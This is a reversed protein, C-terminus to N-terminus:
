GLPPACAVVTPTASAAGFGAAHLCVVAGPVPFTGAVVASFGHTRSPYSTLDPRLSRAMIPGSMQQPGGPNTVSVTVAIPLDFEPDLAWGSVQVGDGAIVASDLAGVPAPGGPGRWVDLGALPGWLSPTEYGLAWIAIGSYGAALVAGARQVVTFEDPVFVTRRVTCTVTGGASLRLAPVLSAADAPATSNARTPPAPPTPPPIAGDRSGTFSLDYTFRLEGSSDRVPSAGHQAALAAASEMQVAVTGLSANAPCTGGTVTAWNRGYANVGIQVKSREGAPVFSNLHAIVDAQWSLPGVPGPSGVSWDYVMLRLRDVHPLIAPMDYVTYGSAGGNWVPPVTVSLLKGHAHLADALEGVFKVWNPRTTTWSTRGDTFAFGEYDLDIGDYGRSVVLQRIAEVHQARTADGALIGAMVLRGTGDTISPVVPIGRSRLANVATTLNAESGSTAITAAGTASFGFPSVEAFVGDFGGAVGRLGENVATGSWNPIWGTVFRAPTAARADRGPATAALTALLGVAAAV